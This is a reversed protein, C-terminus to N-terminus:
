TLGELVGILRALEEARFDAPVRLTFRGRIVVETASRLEAPKLPVRVLSSRARAGGLKDKWYRLGNLGIGERRCFGRMSLGSSKWAEIRDHWIDAKTKVREHIKKM